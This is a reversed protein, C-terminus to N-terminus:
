FYRNPVTLCLSRVFSIQTQPKLRNNPGLSEMPFDKKPRSNKPLGRKLKADRGEESGRPRVMQFCDMLCLDKKPRWLNKSLGLKLKADRGEEPGRPRVM